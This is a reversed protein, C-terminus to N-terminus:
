ESYADELGGVRRMEYIEWFGPDAADLVMVARDPGLFFFVGGTDSDLRPSDPTGDITSYFYVSDPDTGKEGLFVMHDPSRAPLLVGGRIQSGTRKKFALEQPRDTVLIVADFEPYVVLSNFDAQMSRLKWLGTIRDEPPLPVAGGELIERVLEVGEPAFADTDSADIEQLYIELSDRWREVAREEETHAYDRWWKVSGHLAAHDPFFEELAPPVGDRFYLRDPEIAVPTTGFGWSGTGDSDDAPGYPIEHLKRFGDTHFFVMTGDEPTGSLLIVVPEGPVAFAPHTLWEGEPPFAEVMAESHGPPYASLTGAVRAATPPDSGRDAVDHFSLVISEPGGYLDRAGRAGVADEPDEYFDLVELPYGRPGWDGATEEAHLIGSALLAVAVVAPRSLISERM